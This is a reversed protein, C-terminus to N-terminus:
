AEEHIRDGVDSVTRLQFARYFSLAAITLQSGAVQAADHFGAVALLAVAYIGYLGGLLRLGAAMFPPEPDRRVLGALLTVSGLVLAGGWVGVVLGPLLTHLSEPRTMGLLITAGLVLSSVAAFVEFPASLLSSPLRFLLRERRSGLRRRM